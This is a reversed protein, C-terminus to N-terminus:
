GIFPSTIYVNELKEPAIYEGQSLKFINKARDIIKLSGNDKIVGVDGSLLWGDETVAEKTKEPNKFYGQFISNGQFCIEGRPQKDTSYYQMEPIDRLRIRLCSLPGGVHGAEPDFASTLTSAASSETQGYGEHIPACFCIKLFSLVEASIPASGTVMGKVRGGMLARIKNFVLPDWFSHTYHAGNKLHHIKSSVAANFLNQQIASKDKLGSQIKDYIRNFLRPVSPFYTPQLEKLDDLLKLPDGSYYGVSMGSICCVTFLCKEFSHALPLYSIMREEDNFNMGGVNFSASASSMLNMHSLKAAKPDGTTGSTYCFMYIDDAKPTTLNLDISTHKKGEEVVENIHFVKIGVDEGDKEISKDFADM